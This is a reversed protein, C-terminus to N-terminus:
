FNLSTKVAFLVWDEEAKDAPNDKLSASGLGNIFHTEFKICWYESVNLKTSITFDKQWGFFDRDGKKELGSGDKDKSDPYYVGYSTGLAFWDTAQWAIEAYWGEMETKNKEFGAMDTHIKMRMYESSFTVSRIDYEMSLTSIEKLSVDVSLTDLVVEGKGMIDTAGFRLGNVPTNWTLMGGEMHNIIIDALSIDIGFIELQEKYRYMLEQVYMNDTSLNITGCYLEYDLYGLAGIPKTGHFSAGYLGVVFERMGEPYASQPFIIGTRLMDANRKRNYLGFPLKIKGARFGLWDRWNYDLQAWDVGLDNNGFDGMDFSVFQIGFSFDDTLQTAINIGIENFEYSGKKTNGLYNNDTSKLYGQSVFGHLEVNDEGFGRAPNVSLSIFLGAMLAAYFKLKM